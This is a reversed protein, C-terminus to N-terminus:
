TNEPHIRWVSPSVGFCRIFAHSFAYIDGYGVDKAVDGVSNVSNQLLTKALRMRRSLLYDSATM